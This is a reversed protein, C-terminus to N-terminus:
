IKRICVTEEFSGSRTQNKMPQKEVMSTEFKPTILTIDDVGRATFYRGVKKGETGLFWDEYVKLNYNNIDTYYENYEFGYRSSLEECILGTAWFGSEPKWHSGQL